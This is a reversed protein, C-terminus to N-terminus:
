TEPQLSIKSRGMWSYATMTLLGQRPRLRRRSALNYTEFDSAEVVIDFATLLIGEPALGSPYGTSM